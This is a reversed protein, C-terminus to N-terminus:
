GGDDLNSLPAADGDATADQLQQTGVDQTQATQEPMKQNEVPPVSTTQTQVIIIQQFECVIDLANETTENTALGLRAMLMNNYARKGTVVDFVQGSSQLKLLKNYIDTSYNEDSGAAPDSNSWMVRMLLRAPRKYAHDSIAAGREVPHQTIELEDDGQEELTCNPIIGGINRQPGNSQVSVDQLASGPNTFGPSSM